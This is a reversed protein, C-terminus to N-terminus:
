SCLKLFSGWVPKHQDIYAQDYYLKEQKNM